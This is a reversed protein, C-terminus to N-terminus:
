RREDRRGGPWCSEGSNSQRSTHWGPHSILRYGRKSQFLSGVLDRQPLPAPIGFPNSWCSEAQRSIGSAGVMWGVRYLEPTRGPPDLCFSLYLVHAHWRCSLFFLGQFSGHSCSARVRPRDALSTIVPTSFARQFAPVRLRVPLRRWRCDAKGVPDLYQVGGIYHSHPGSEQM